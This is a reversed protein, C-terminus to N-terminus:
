EIRAPLDTWRWVCRMPPGGPVSTYCIGSKLHIKRQSYMLMKNWDQGLDQELHFAQPTELAPYSGFQDQRWAGASGWRWCGLTVILTRLEQLYLCGTGWSPVHPGNRSLEAEMPQSRYAPVIEKAFWCTKLLCPCMEPCQVMCNALPLNPLADPRSVLISIFPCSKFNFM